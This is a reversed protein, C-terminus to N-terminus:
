FQWCSFCCSTKTQKNCKMLFGKSQKMELYDSRNQDFTSSVYLQVHGDFSHLLLWNRVHVEHAGLFLCVLSFCYEVLVVPDM